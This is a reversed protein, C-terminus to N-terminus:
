GLIDSLNKQSVPIIFSKEVNDQCLKATSKQQTRNTWTKSLMSDSTSALATEQGTAAQLM